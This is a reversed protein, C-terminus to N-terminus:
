SMREKLLFFLHRFGDRFSRLKSTGTRVGYDIPIETLRFGKRHIRVLMESSFEMGPESLRLAPLLERRFGLFGTSPETLRLGFLTRFLLLMGPNGIYRHLFPMAGSEMTGLFRSGLVADFHQLEKLFRPIEDFDYSSDPDGMIIHTGAAAAFGARYANGYGRAPEYVYRIDYRQVIQATNDTSGNDVVVIEGPIEHAAFVRQIKEISPGIGDEENLCPLVVSVDVM